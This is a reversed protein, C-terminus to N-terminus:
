SMQLAELMRDYGSEYATRDEAPEGEDSLRVGFGAPAAGGPSRLGRAWVAKGRLHVVQEAFPPRMELWIPTGPAPPDLTRVYMGERSINYTLGYVVELSGARRFACITGYLLRTSARVNRVDPRLLENALFLLNDPPAKELTAAAGGIEAAADRVQSMAGESATVVLVVNDFGTRARIARTAEFPGGGPLGADAVLIAPPEGRAHGVRVLDAADVAFAVDFGAQRLIRGLVRRRLEDPHAVVAQGQTLPPRASPDFEALNALRRALGGYDGLPVVDDAGISHARLYARDAPAAVQVAVPVPFLRAEGRVWAVFPELGDLREDAVLCRPVPEQASVLLGRAEDADWCFRADVGARRAAESADERSSAPDAGVFVVPGASSTILGAQSSQAATEGAAAM